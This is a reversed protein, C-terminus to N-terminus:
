REYFGTRRKKDACIKLGLAAGDRLTEPPKSELGHRGLYSVVEESTVVSTDVVIHDIYSSTGKGIEQSSTLVPKLVKAM